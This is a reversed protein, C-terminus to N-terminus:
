QLTLAGEMLHEALTTRAQAAARTFNRHAAIQEDFALLAAGIQRQEALPPLAVTLQGLSQTSIFPIPTGSSRSRIWELVAPLSLFGLLYRPDAVNFKILRM